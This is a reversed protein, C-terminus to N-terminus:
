AVLGPQASRVVASYSVFSLRGVQPYLERHVCSALANAAALGVPQSKSVLVVMLSRRGCLNLVRLLLLDLQVERSFIGHFRM